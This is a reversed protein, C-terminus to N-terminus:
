ISAGGAVSAEIAQHHVADNELLTLNEEMQRIADAVVALKEPVPADLRAHALATRYSVLRRALIAATTDILRGNEELRARVNVFSAPNELAITTLSTPAGLLGDARMRDAQNIEECRGEFQSMLATDSAVDDALANLLAVPSKPHQVRLRMYYGLSPPAVVEADALHTLGFLRDDEPAPRESVLNASIRRLNEEADTLSLSPGTKGSNLMAGIREFPTPRYRGFDPDQACASLFLAAIAAFGKKKWISPQGTRM